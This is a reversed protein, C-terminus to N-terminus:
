ADPTEADLIRSIDRAGHLVRIVDIGGATERDFILHKEFGEVRRVRLGELRPDGSERREGMGPM